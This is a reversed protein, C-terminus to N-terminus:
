FHGGGRVDLFPSAKDRGEGEKVGM